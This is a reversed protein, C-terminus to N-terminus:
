HETTSMLGALGGLIAGFLIGFVPALVLVKSEAGTGDLAYGLALFGVVVAIPMGVLMGTRIRSIEGKQPMYIPNPEAVLASVPELAPLAGPASTAEFASLPALPNPPDATTIM